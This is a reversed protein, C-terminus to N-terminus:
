EPTGLFRFTVLREDAGHRHSCDLRVQLAQITNGELLHDSDLLLATLCKGYVAGTDIDIAVVDDICAHVDIAGFGTDRVCTKPDTLRLYPYGSEPNYSGIAEEYNRMLVTPTHGHILIFDGYRGPMAHRNWVHLDEIWLGQERRFQHFQEYTELALQQEVPVTRPGADTPGTNRGSHLLAHCFAIRLARNGQTFVETHAYKLGDIFAKHATSLHVDEPRIHNEADADMARRLAQPDTALSAVTEHGDNGRFWINGYRRYLEDKRLFQLMLDEHNGALFVCPFTERLAILADLVQCSSPGYDIYDGLFVLTAPPLGTEMECLQIRRLLRNLPDFMGHIDGIVWVRKGSM